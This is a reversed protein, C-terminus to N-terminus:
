VSKSSNNNVNNVFPQRRNVTTTSLELGKRVFGRGRGYHAGFRVGTRREWGPLSELISNIRNADRKQMTYRNEFCEEWIELACIRDRPQLTLEGKFGGGYWVSRKKADWKLWDQPVPTNLFAEVQGQLPDVEAHLERKTEAVAELFAPLILPEGAKYRVVAEAWIQDVEGPLDRFINKVPTGAGADVPWFRRNGTTDRLYDPNNTTGFFVCQRPHAKSRRAYPSRYRDVTKSLFGKIVNLESKQLAGLEGVEVLWLGQLNEAADKGEFSEVTAAWQRGLILVFTTKGIGQGGCIVTMTDFKVGPNMVRAVAATFAKRAIARTYDSDEAGLYDIYLTYLRPVGDWHLSKLYDRVPHFSQREAAQLFADDIM